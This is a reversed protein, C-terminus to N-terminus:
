TVKVKQLAAVETYKHDNSERIYTTNVTLFITDVQQEVNGGQVVIEGRMVEGAQYTSKELITDVTASGIGISAFAKNFFSM